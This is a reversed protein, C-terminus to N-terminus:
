CDAPEVQDLVDEATVTGEIFGPIEAVKDILFQMRDQEFEGTPDLDPIVMDYMMDALAEDLEYFDVMFAVTEDRNEKMWNVAAVYAGMVKSATDRDELATESAHLGTFNLEPLDEWFKAVWRFGEQELVHGWPLLVVAMDVDGTELSTRITPLSGGLPVGVMDDPSLGAQNIAYLAFWHTLAGESTFSIKVGATLDEMTQIPSDDPVILGWGQVTQNVEGITKIPAGEERAGIVTTTGVWGYQAENAALAPMLAGGGQFHVVEADLGCQEYLGQEAAILIPINAVDKEVASGITASVLESPEEATTDDTATDPTSESPTDTTDEAGGDDSSSGGCSAAVLCLVLLLFIVPRRIRLAGLKREKERDKRAIGM